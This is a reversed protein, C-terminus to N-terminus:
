LLPSWVYDHVVKLGIILDCGISQFPFTLELLIGWYQWVWRNITKVCCIKWLWRRVLTRQFCNLHIVRIKYSRYNPIGPDQVRGELYNCNSDFYQDGNEPFRGPYVENNKDDSASKLLYYIPWIIHGM